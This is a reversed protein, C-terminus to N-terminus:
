VLRIDARTQAARNREVFQRLLARSRPAPPPQRTVRVVRYTHPSMGILASAAADSLRLRVALALLESVIEEDTM